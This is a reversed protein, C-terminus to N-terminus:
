IGWFFHDVGCSKHMLSHTASQYIQLIANRDNIVNVWVRGLEVHGADKTDEPIPEGDAETIHISAEEHQTHQHGSEDDEDCYLDPYYKMYIRFEANEIDKATLTPERGNEGSHTPTPKHIEDGDIVPVFNNITGYYISVELPFLDANKQYIKFPYWKYPPGTPKLSEIITTNPDQTLKIGRGAVIEHPNPLAEVVDAMLNFARAMAPERTSHLRPLRRNPMLNPKDSM